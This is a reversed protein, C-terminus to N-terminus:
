AGPPKAAGGSFMGGLFHSGIFTWPLLIASVLYKALAELKATRHELINVKTYYGTQPHALTQKMESVDSSLQAQQQVMAAQQSALTDLKSLILDRNDM